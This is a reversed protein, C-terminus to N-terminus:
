TLQCILKVLIITVLGSTLITSSCTKRMPNTVTVMPDHSFVPMHQVYLKSCTLFRMSVNRHIHSSLFCHPNDTTLMATMGITLHAMVVLSSYCPHHLVLIIM